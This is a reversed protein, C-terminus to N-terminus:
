HAAELRESDDASSLHRAGHLMGALAWFLIGLQTNFVPAGMALVFIHAQLTLVIIAVTSLDHDSSATLAFAYWLSLLIAGGYILWMLVGGDLLWGTMQIEVYIPPSVYDFPNGFYTNMMGWRGVGAGLPYQDLLDGITQDVFGGRGTRYADIAGSGGLNSFRETVSEGGVATAWAFSAVLIAAGAVLILGAGATRGRRFAVLGLLVAAGVTALLTSRVQSLYIAAFGVTIAALIGAVQLPSRRRLLLGFGLLAGLAGATAAAGPQDTLGPPRVILRGDAGRYTLGDVYYQNMQLGLSNFETPMFREPYYVQLVGLGASLINMAFILILLRELLQPSRVAKHGWFLPTAICLQFICQAVGAVLQSTPHLLNLVLM